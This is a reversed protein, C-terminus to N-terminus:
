NVRGGGILDGEMYISDYEVNTGAHLANIMMGGGVYIGVHHPPSGFFVLDGPQLASIPIHTTVSYQAAASHPLPHGAHGWAWATLGSCDYAAPGGGGYDYPKGMQSAAEALAGAAGPAPPPLPGPNFSGGSLGGGPGAGRDRSARQAERSAVLARTRSTAISLRQATAAAVLAALDGQVKALTARTAADAAAAAHRASNAAALARAAAGQDAVLQTQQEGLQAHLQRLADIADNTGGAVTRVYADRIALEQANQPVMLALDAASGGQMYSSIAMNRVKSRAGDLQGGAQGLRAKAAALKANVANVRLVAQDYQEALRSERIGLDEIKRSLAGAQAQKAALTDAGAPTGTAFFPAAVGVAVIVRLIAQRLSPTPSFSWRSGTPTRVVPGLPLL